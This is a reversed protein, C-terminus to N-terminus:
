IPEYRVTKFIDHNIDDQLIEDLVSPKVHIWEGGLDIPFSAFDDTKLLRGGLRGDAELIVFDTNGNQTLTYAATLGAAGAGVILITM